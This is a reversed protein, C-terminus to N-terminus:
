SPESEVRYHKAIPERIDWTCELGAPLTILDGSEVEVNGDETEIRAQGTVLYCVETADYRWSYRSVGRRSVPWALIGRENADDPSISEVIVQM